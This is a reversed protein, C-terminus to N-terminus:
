DENTEIESLAKLQEDTLKTVDIKANTVNATVEMKSMQDGTLKTLLDMAKLDGQGAKTALKVAIVEKMTATEGKANTVSQALVMELLERMTRKERKAIGSAIGGKRGNEVAKEHSQDSTFSILNDRGAM